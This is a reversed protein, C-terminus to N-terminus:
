GGGVITIIEVKDMNNLYMKIWDEKPYINNNYELILFQDNYNLYELLNYITIKSKTQYKQGNLFFQNM